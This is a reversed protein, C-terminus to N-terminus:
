HKSRDVFNMVKNGTKSREFGELDKVFEVKFDDENGNEKFVIFLKKLGEIIEENSVLADGGPQVANPDSRYLRITLILTETEPLNELLIQYQLIGWGRQGQIYEKVTHFEFYEGFFKFSFRRDRGYLRIVRLHQAVEPPIEDTAPFPRVSAMDGTVYRVLPNRLRSLSTQVLIGKEGDPVPHIERGAGSEDLLDPPLIEVVMMRSDYIFDVGDEDPEGTISFNAVSWAGAECSGNVSYIKAGLVSSIIKRQDQSLADSTYVVKNVQVQARREAPLSAVFNAFALVQSGDGAFVNAKFDIVHEIAIEGQMSLGGCLVAGGAMEFLETMLDLSRYLNGCAHVSFVVDGPVIAGCTRILAAAAARHRRNELVDTAFLMPKGGSGGGTISLYASKRYPNEPSTDAWLRNITPYLTDKTALPMASLNVGETDNKDISNAIEIVEEQTPPYKIERNYLPHVKAVALAQKLSYGTDM